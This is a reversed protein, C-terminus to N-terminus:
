QPVDRFPPLRLLRRPREDTFLRRATCCLLRRLAETWHYLYTKVGASRILLPTCDISVRM